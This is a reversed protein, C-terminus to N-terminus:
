SHLLKKHARWLKFFIIFIILILIQQIVCFICIARLVFFEIYSLVLSFVLGFGTFLTATGLLKNFLGGNVFASFVFLVTYTLFGLVSVPIGFIEAYISKNVRDCNVFDNVNCFSNEINAYHQIMLYATVTMGLLSLVILVVKFRKLTKENM